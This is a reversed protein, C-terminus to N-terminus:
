HKPLYGLGRRGEGDRKKGKRGMEIGGKWTAGVDKLRITGVGM